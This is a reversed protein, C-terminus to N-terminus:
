NFFLSDNKETIIEFLRGHWKKVFTGEATEATEEGEDSTELVEEAKEESTEVSVAIRDDAADEKNITKIIVVTLVVAVVLLVAALVALVKVLGKGETVSNAKVSNSREYSAVSYLKGGCRSCSKAQPAYSAGCDWCFKLNLGTTDTRRRAEASIENGEENVVTVIPCNLGEYFPRPTREKGVPAGRSPNATNYNRNNDM